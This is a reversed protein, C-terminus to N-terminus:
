ALILIIFYMSLILLPTMFTVRLKRITIHVSWGLRNGLEYPGYVSCLQQPSACSEQYLLSKFFHLIYYLLIIIYYM